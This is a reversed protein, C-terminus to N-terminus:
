HPAAENSITNLWGTIEAMIKEKDTRVFESLIVHNGDAIEVLKNKAGAGKAKGLEPFLERIKGIDITDDHHKADKYYILGLVPPNIAHITERRMIYRRLDNLGILAAFKQKKLWYKYYDPHQRKEPDEKWSADREKGMIASALRFGGPFNLIRTTKNGFDWLPSALILAHIKDGHKAGLYTAILGGTSTGMVIIKKGLKPMMLLAEEGSQIYQQFTAAAHAEANLGHGPLRLYYLNAHLAEALRDAVAEGEARSAGFGHIYLIAAGNNEENHIVLKETMHEPVGIAHSFNRQREYYEAFSKAPVHQQYTYQLDAQRCYARAYFWSGTMLVLSLLIRRM